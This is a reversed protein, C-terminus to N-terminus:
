RVGGLYKNLWDAETAVRVADPHERPVFSGLAEWESTGLKSSGELVKQIYEEAVSPAFQIPKGGKRIFAVFAKLCVDTMNDGHKKILANTHRLVGNRENTSFERGTAKQMQLMLEYPINIKGM